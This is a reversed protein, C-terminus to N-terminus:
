VLELPTGSFCFFLFMEPVRWSVAAPNNYSMCKVKRSCNRSTVLEYKCHHLLQVPLLHGLCHNCHLLHQALLLPRSSRPGCRACLSLPKSPVLCASNPKCKIQVCYDSIHTKLSVKLYLLWNGCGLDELPRTSVSPANWCSCHSGLLYWPWFILFWSPEQTSLLVDLKANILRWRLSVPHCISILQLSFSNHM